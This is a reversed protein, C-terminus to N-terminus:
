GCFIWCIIHIGGTCGFYSFGFRCYSLKSSTIYLPGVRLSVLCSMESVVNSFKISIVGRAITFICSDCRIRFKNYTYWGGFFPFCLYPTTITFRLTHLHVLCFLTRGLPDEYWTSLKLLIVILDGHQFVQSFYIPSPCTYFQWVFLFLQDLFVLHLDYNRFFPQSCCWISPMISM